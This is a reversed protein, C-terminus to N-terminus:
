TTSEIFTFDYNISTVGEGQQWSLNVNQVVGYVVGCLDSTYYATAVTNVNSSIAGQMAQIFQALTLNAGTYVHTGRVNIQRRAGELQLVIQSSSAAGPLRILEIGSDKMFEESLVNSLTIASGGVPTLTPTAM